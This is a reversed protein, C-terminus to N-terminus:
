IRHNHLKNLRSLGYRRIHVFYAQEDIIVWGRGVLTFNINKGERSRIAFGRVAYFSM